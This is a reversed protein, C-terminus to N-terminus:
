NNTEYLNSPRSNLGLMYWALGFALNDTEVIGLRVGTMPGNAGDVQTLREALSFYFKVNDKEIAGASIMFLLLLFVVRIINM